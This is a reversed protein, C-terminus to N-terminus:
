STGLIHAPAQHQSGDEDAVARLQLMRLIWYCALGATLHKLTHGSVIGKLSYIQKDWLEFLKALVYFIFAVVLDNTRTYRPPFLGVIMATAFVSFPQVFLYFRFDGQSQLESIFWYAVSGSGLGMLPLLLWLGSRVSVREVINADVVSVFSFTMPLLDWILRSNGPALHYYGSGIGTLMVGAFFVFYPIRECSETFAPNNVRRSLFIIGWM